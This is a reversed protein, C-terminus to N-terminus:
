APRRGWASILPSTSLDMTGDAINALHREVQEETALDADVLMTGVQAITAQELVTCAPSAIPFFADACVDTLGAERLRRPLTRGFALDVGRGRMLARFGRRLENALAERPGAEDPCLLPQLGPDADELLLWGGPRLASVMAALAAERNPVHVLVLRAHILDFGADPPPEAGVDHRLVDFPQDGGLWTLDLDTALVRGTPGVQSAMWASIAPGGAGVEWCRWGPAIGIASLHRQTVPDFLQALADLRVGAATDKNDLLYEDTDGV